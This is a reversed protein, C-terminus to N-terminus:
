RAVSGRNTYQCLLQTVHDLSAPLPPNTGPMVRHVPFIHGMM